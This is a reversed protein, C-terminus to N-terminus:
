EEDYDVAKNRAQRRFHRSKEVDERGVHWQGCAPCRYVALVERDRGDRDRQRSLGKSAAEALRHSPWSIKAACTLAHRSKQTKANKGACM